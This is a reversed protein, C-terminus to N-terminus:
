KGAMHPSNFLPNETEQLLLEYYESLPKNGIQTWQFLWNNIDTDHKFMHIGTMSGSPSGNKSIITEGGNLFVSKHRNKRSGVNGCGISMVEMTPKYIIRYVGIGKWVSVGKSKPSTETILHPKTWEPTNNSLEKIDDIDTSLKQLIKNISETYIKDKM